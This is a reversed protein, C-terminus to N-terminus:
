EIRVLRTQIGTVVRHRMSIPLYEATASQIRHHYLCIGSRYAAFCRGFEYQDGVATIIHNKLALISIALIRRVNLLRLKTLQRIRGLVFQRNLLERSRSHLRDIGQRFQFTHRRRLRGLHHEVRNAPLHMNYHDPPVVLHVLGLQPVRRTAVIHPKRGRGLHRLRPEHRPRRRRYTNVFRQNNNIVRDRQRM